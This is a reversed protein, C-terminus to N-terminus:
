KGAIRASLREFLGDVQAAGVKAVRHPRRQLTRMADAVAWGSWVAPGRLGRVTIKPAQPTGVGFADWGQQLLHNMSCEIAVLDPPVGSQSLCVVSGRGANAIRVVDTDLQYRLMQAVAELTERFRAPGFHRYLVLANEIELTFINMKYRTAATRLFENELTPFSAVGAAKRLDFPADFSTATDCEIKHDPQAGRRAKALSDSLLAALKVRTVLELVDFPKNVFDTAGVDFAQRVLDRTRSATIMIVPTARYKPISRLQRCIEIGSVGPLIVDLLFIDYPLHAVDVLELADEATAAFTIDDFGSNELATGLLDLMVPDDDVALIRM